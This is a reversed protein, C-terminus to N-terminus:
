PISSAISCALALAKRAADRQLGILEVVRDLAHV